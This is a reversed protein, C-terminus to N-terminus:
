RCLGRSMSMDHSKGSNAEDVENKIGRVDGKEDIHGLEKGWIAL